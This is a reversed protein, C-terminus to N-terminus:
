WSWYGMKTSESVDFTEAPKEEKRINESRRPSVYDSPISFTYRGLTYVRAKAFDRCGDPDSFVVQQFEDRAERLPYAM